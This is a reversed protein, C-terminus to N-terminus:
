IKLIMVLGSRMEREVFIARLRAWYVQWGGALDNGQRLDTAQMMAIFTTDRLGNRCGFLRCTEAYPRNWKIVTDSPHLPAWFGRM